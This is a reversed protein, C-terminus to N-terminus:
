AGPRTIVHVVAGVEQGPPANVSHTVAGHLEGTGTHETLGAVTLVRQVDKAVHDLGTHVVEVGLCKVRVGVIQHQHGLHAGPAVAPSAQMVGLPGLVQALAYQGVQPHEVGARGVADRVGNKGSPEAKAMSLVTSVAGATTVLAVRRPM